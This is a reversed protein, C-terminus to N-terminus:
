KGEWGGDVHVSQGTLYSAEDSAFFAVVRGIERPEGARGLSIQQLVLPLIDPSKMVWATMDTDILGPHVCNVRIGQPTVEASMNRTLAELGLKTPAYHTRGPLVKAAQISGIHVISGKRNEAIAKRCFVQSCLWAGRLNVDVLRTWQEDTLELFPVITEIGANNVLIDLRGFRERVQAFAADVAAEDAVDANVVLSDCPMVGLSHTDRDIVVPVAGRAVLAEITAWGIGRAGGTVVAVRGALDQTGAAREHDSANM